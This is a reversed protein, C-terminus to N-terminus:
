ESIQAKKYKVFSLVRQPILTEIERPKKEKALISPTDDERGAIIPRKEKAPFGLFELLPLLLKHLPKLITASRSSEVPGASTRKLSLRNHKEDSNMVGQMIKSSRHGGRGQLWQNNLATTRYM